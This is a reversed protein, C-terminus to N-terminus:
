STLGVGTKQVAQQGVDLTIARKTRHKLLGPKNTGATRALKRLNVIDENRENEM